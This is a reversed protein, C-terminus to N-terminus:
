EGCAEVLDGLRGEVPRSQGIGLLADIVVAAEQLLVTLASLDTDTESQLVPGDYGMLKRDRFLSVVVDRGATHLRRAAVLGDGGNNGPGVLIVIRGEPKSSQVVQALAFGAHEMLADLSVGRRIAEEEIARM